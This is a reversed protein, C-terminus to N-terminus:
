KINQHFCHNLKKKLEIVKLKICGQQIITNNRFVLLLLMNVKFNQITPYTYIVM